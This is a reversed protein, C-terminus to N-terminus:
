QFSRLFEGMFTIATRSVPALTAATGVWRGGTVAVELSVTQAAFSSRKSVSLRDIERRLLAIRADFDRRTRVIESKRQWCEILIPLSGIIVVIGLDRM